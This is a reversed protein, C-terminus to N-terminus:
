RDQLTALSQAFEPTAMLAKCRSFRGDAYARFDEAPNNSALQILGWLTWLLDCMAKYIIMRAQDTAPPPGGFYAELLAQDQNADFGGEVSLDGLDWMPDNMGSYEWDVIFIREGTDLFNECLPDCHCAVLEVPNRALAQRVTQAESVVDHYGDPLTVDKTALIALYEDIMAFLEFTFPFRAGSTHLIRFAEGARRVAGLDKGFGEPTMTIAGDIFRTAMVGTTPDAYIVEPSVGAAAAAHAAEAEHARNIYEETGDGPLRVCTDGVRFVLNTLGGLREVPGAYGALEPIDPLSARLRSETEDTM